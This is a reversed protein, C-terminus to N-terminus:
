PEVDPKSLFFLSNKIAYLAFGVGSKVNMKNLIRARMGDVTRKSMFLIKGIEESSKEECVLKIVEKEKDSFLSQRCGTASDFKSKKIMTALKATTSKCHYHQYKNVTKVAEIVEGDQANKIVFGLAGAELAEAILSESDFTTIAIIGISKNVSLQKIAEIGGIGPMKLDTIIVDPQHLSSLEILEKGNCAEAIVEIETDTKLLMKLGERFLSQDDAVIVKIKKLTM